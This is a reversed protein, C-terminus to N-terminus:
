FIAQLLIRYFQTPGTLVPEVCPIKIDVHLCTATVDYINSSMNGDKSVCLHVPSLRKLTFYSCVCMCNHESRRQKMM